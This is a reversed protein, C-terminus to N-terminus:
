ENREALLPMKGSSYHAALQPVIRKGVTSGDSLMVDALFEREFTSIGATIAELKAKIILLLARWQTRCAQEWARQRDGLDHRVRGSATHEFAEPDPLPLTIKVYVGQHRFQIMAVDRDWGSIFQDCGYRGLTREIEARSNEVPVRTEAAYRSM